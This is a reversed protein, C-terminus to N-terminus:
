VAELATSGGSVITEIAYRASARLDSFTQDVAHASNCDSSLHALYVRSWRPSPISELLAKTENNSLHGHRGSIRQKLSWPRKPDDALMRTDYNAEVVLTDVNQIQQAINKPAFGLDTLWAMSRQPTFLDEPDGATFTFGVPDHADHPISFSEVSLDKYQFRTGTQFLTWSPQHKLRPALAKATLQNAFVKTSFRKAFTSIGASHDSHEHTVFIADIEEPRVNRQELMECLRRCSFGADILVKCNQTVLLGANGASSSGLISFQMTM